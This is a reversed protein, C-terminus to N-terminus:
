WSSDVNNHSAFLLQFFNNKEKKVHVEKEKQNCNGNYQNQQKLGKPNIIM